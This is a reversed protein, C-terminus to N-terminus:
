EWAERQSQIHGRNAERELIHCKCDRYYFVSSVLNSATMDYLVNRRTSQYITINRFLKIDEKDLTLYYSLSSQKNWRFTQILRRSTVDRVVKIKLRECNLIESNTTAILYTVM